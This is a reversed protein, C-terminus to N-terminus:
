RYKLAIMITCVKIKSKFDCVCINHYLFRPLSIFTRNIGFVTCLQEKGTSTYILWRWLTHRQIIANFDIGLPAYVVISNFVVALKVAFPIQAPKLCLSRFCVSSIYYFAFDWEFGQLIQPQNLIIDHACAYVTRFERGRLLALFLRYHFPNRPDIGLCFCWIIM